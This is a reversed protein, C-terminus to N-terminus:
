LSSRGDSTGRTFQLRWVNKRRNSDLEPSGQFRECQSVERHTSVKRCSDHTNMASFLDVYSEFGTWNLVNLNRQILQMHEGLYYYALVSIICNLLIVCIRSYSSTPFGNRRINNLLTKFRRYNDGSTVFMIHKSVISCQIYFWAMNNVLYFRNSYMQENGDLSSNHLLVYIM